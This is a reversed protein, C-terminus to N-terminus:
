RTRMATQLAARLARPGQGRARRIAKNLSHIDGLGTQAAISKLPATTHELLYCAREIRRARTWEIPTQGTQARFCRTLHNHSVELERALDAISIPESGRAVIIQSAREVLQEQPTLARKPPQSLQWLVDWVRAQARPAQARPAQAHSSNWFTVAESLAEYHVEFRAGLNQLAAFPRAMGANTKFHVFFHTHQTPTPFHFEIPANPPILTACGARVDLWRGSVRLQLPDRYLHLCWSDPILYKELALSGHRGIGLMALVPAEELPLDYFDSM